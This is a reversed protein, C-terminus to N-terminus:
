RKSYTKHFSIKFADINPNLTDYSGPASELLRDPGRGGVPTNALGAAWARMATSTSGGARAPIARRGRMMRPARHLASSACMGSPQSM